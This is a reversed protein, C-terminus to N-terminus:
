TKIVTNKFFNSFSENDKETIGIGFPMRRSPFVDTEVIKKRRARLKKESM